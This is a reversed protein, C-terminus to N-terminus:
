NNLAAHHCVYADEDIVDFEYGNDKYYKVITPLAEITTYKDATDHMLLNISPKLGYTKFHSTLFEVPMTRGDADGSDVNWDYYQYGKEVVKKTLSTMIGPCHNKSVQNSSGGPFRIINTRVGTWNYVLDSIKQLDEFYAQESKYIESYEHQYAHLAVTHGRNVIETLHQPYANVANGVVFFTAKVGLEDLVDLLQPTNKSPGDDFTLYVVKKGDPVVTTQSVTSSVPTSSPSQSSIVSSTESSVNSSTESSVVDSSVLDSSADSIIEDSSTYINQYSSTANNGIGTNSLTIIVGVVLGLILVLVLIMLAFITIASRKYNSNNNAM